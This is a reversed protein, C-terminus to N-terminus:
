KIGKDAALFGRCLIRIAKPEMGMAYLLEWGQPGFSTLLQGIKPFDPLNTGQEWKHVASTTVGVLRALDEQTLGTNRRFNKLANSFMPYEDSKM